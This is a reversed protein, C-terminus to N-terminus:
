LPSPNPLNKEFMEDLKELLHDKWWQEDRENVGEGYMIDEPNDSHELDHICHGLEHLVVRKWKASFVDKRNVVIRRTEGVKVGAIKNGGYFCGGRFGEDLEGFQMSRLLHLLGESPARLLYLDLIPRLDRDISAPETGCGLAVISFFLGLFIRRM